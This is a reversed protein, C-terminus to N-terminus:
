PVVRFRLAMMRDSRKKVEKFRSILEGLEVNLHFSISFSETVSLLFVLFNTLMNRLSSRVSLSCDYLFIDLSRVFCLGFVGSLFFSYSVSAPNSVKILKIAQLSYGHMFVNKKLFFMSFEPIKPIHM